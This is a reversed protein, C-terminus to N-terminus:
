SRLFKRIGEPLHVRVAGYIVLPLAAASVYGLFRGRWQPCYKKKFEFLSKYGYIRNFNEFFYRVAQDPLAGECRKVELVGYAVVAALFIGGWRLAVRVSSADSQAM